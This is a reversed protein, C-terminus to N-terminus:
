WSARRYAIIAAILIVINPLQMAFLPPLKGAQIQLTGWTLLSWYALLVVMAILAAGARVARTRVTGFGIGLFVFILPTIAIAYRRWYEGRVELGDYGHPDTQQIRRVLEHYPIMHPKHLDESAGEDIKLYLKYEGFDIKSYSGGELNNQHISGEFLRLLAASGLESNTKVSLLEGSKAVVALPNKAEREDFIFVHKLRNTRSDVKDAFILLDFFGSTFTGEKLESAVKTNGVKILTTKFEREGWPVWEMNLIVSLAVVALALGVLPVALRNVGYGNAKMAVLESDASLRGFATLVAILFAVPLATPVFSLGLLLTMKGLMLGSVGHIIFFEALRLAQFMLFVFLFFALGGFFPGIVEVLLYRDIRTSPIWHRWRGRATETHM